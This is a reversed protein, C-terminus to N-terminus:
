RHIFATLVPGILVVAMANLVPVPNLRMLGAHTILVIFM